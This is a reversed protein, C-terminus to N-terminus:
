KEQFNTQQNIDSDSVVKEAIEALDELTYLVMKSPNRKWLDPMCRMRERIDSLYFPWSPSCELFYAKDVKCFAQAARQRFTEWLARNTVVTLFLEYKSPLLTELVPLFEEPQIKDLGRITRYLPVKDDPYPDAQYTKSIKHYCHPCVQEPTRSISKCNADSQKTSNM